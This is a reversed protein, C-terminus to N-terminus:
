CSRPAGAVGGRGVARRGPRGSLMGVSRAGAASRVVPRCGADALPTQLGGGRSRPAHGRAAAEAEMAVITAIKPAVREVVDAEMLTIVQLLGCGERVACCRRPRCWAKWLGVGATSCGRWRMLPLCSGAQLQM